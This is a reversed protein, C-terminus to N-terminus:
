LSATPWDEIRRRWLLRGQQPIGDDMVCEAALLESPQFPQELAHPDETIRSTFVTLDPMHAVIWLSSESAHQKLLSLFTGLRTGASLENVTTMQLIHLPEVLREATERARVFPSSLLLDASLHLRRMHEIASELRGIGLPTLPRTRDAGQWVGPEVAEAHRMLYIRM